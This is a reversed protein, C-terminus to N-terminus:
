FPCIQTSSPLYSFLLGVFLNYPYSFCLLFESIVIWYTSCLDSSTHNELYSLTDRFLIVYVTEGLLQMISCDM